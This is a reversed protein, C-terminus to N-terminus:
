AKLVKRVRVAIGRASSRMETAGMAARGTAQIGEGVVFVEDGVRIRDDVSLVGPALIDGKPVFNDIQVRYGEGLLKWGAFTPTCLGTDPSLSFLQEKDQYVFTNPGKTRLRMGRTDVDLDFQWSLIGRILASEPVRREGELARDLAGLSEASGTSGTCTCELEVGCEEAAMEAASLAGGELHAIVRQYHNRRFYEALVSSVWTLEERDWYGTVPVDYHAAPYIGELERPVLGLPSTIILEHARKRIASSFRRHSQSLSYPKRASCPLLVAVRAVPPRYRHIVRKAFRRIEPRALAEASCALFPVNRAVPTHLELFDYQADLFRLIAVQSANMRCRAEVLERLQGRELFRTVIAIERSLTELNHTALDGERCGQCSCTGLDMWKAPYEGETTCFRGQATKLDLMCSDFLDFGSYILIAATSPLAAAPAYWLTDSPIRQKLMVLWEIYKRPHELATHWGPVMICSGHPIPTSVAPHVAYPEEDGPVLYCAVFAPDALLPVHTLARHNLSPFRGEISQVCPFVLERDSIRATGSRALGDRSRIDIVQM